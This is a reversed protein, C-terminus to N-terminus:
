DTLFLKVARRNTFGWMQSEDALKTTYKGTRAQARSQVQLSLGDQHTWSM